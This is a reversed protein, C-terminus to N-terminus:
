SGGADGSSTLMNRLSTQLCKHVMIYLGVRLSAQALFGRAFRSWAVSAFFPEGAIEVMAVLAFTGFLALWSAEARDGVLSYSLDFHSSANLFFMIPISLFWRERGGLPYYFLHRILQTAPRSWRSWFERTSKSSYVWGYPLIVHPTTTHPAFLPTSILGDHFIQWSHSPIDLLVVAMSAMVAMYELEFLIFSTIITQITEVKTLLYFGSAFGLGCLVIHISRRGLKGGPPWCGAHISGEDGQVFKVQCPALAYLLLERPGDRSINYRESLKEGGIILVANSCEWLATIAYLVGKVLMNDCSALLHGSKFSSASLLMIVGLLWRLAAHPYHFKAFITM